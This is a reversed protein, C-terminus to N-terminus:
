MARWDAESASWEYASRWVISKAAAAWTSETRAPGSANSGRSWDHDRTLAKGYPDLLLKNPNFRNGEADVDAIFGHISGPYWAPDEPWNPGWAVYGYTTGVGIGEVYLNWVDGFHAMPFRKTPLEAEPDEFLLLDVRTARESYVGFNVGTALLTPGLYSLAEVDEQTLEPAIPQTDYLRIRPGADDCATAWSLLCSLGIVNRM